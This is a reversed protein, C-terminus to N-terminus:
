VKLLYKYHVVDRQTERHPSLEVSLIGNSFCSNFLVDWALVTLEVKNNKSCLWVAKKKKKGNKQKGMICMWNFLVLWALPICWVRHTIASIDWPNNLAIKVHRKKRGPPRYQLMTPLVEVANVIIDFWCSMIWVHLKPVCCLSSKNYM